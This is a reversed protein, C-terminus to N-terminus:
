KPDENPKGWLGGDDKVGASADQGPSDISNDLDPTTSNDGAQVGPLVTTTTQNGPPGTVTGPSVNGTGTQQVAPAIPLIEVRHEPRYFDESVFQSELLEGKQGYKERSITILFGAEGEKEASKQGPQLLPSYQKITRPKFEQKGSATIKYGYLLPAGKVTVQLKKDVLSLEISYASKNPNYFKLDLNNAFDVKSEFGLDINGALKPSIHRETISFNTPLIAKYIASAIQSFAFSSKEILGKENANNALSVQSESAIEIKQVAEVLEKMENSEEPLDISAQSITVPEEEPLFNELSIELAPTFRQGATRLENFLLEKEILGLITEPLSLSSLIGENMEIYLENKTGSEAEAISEDVLYIFQAPDIAYIDGKYVLSIRAAALWENLKAEIAAKAQEHTKNAVDVTGIYTKELFTQNSSTRSGLASVGFYTFSFILVSLILSFKIIKKNEV